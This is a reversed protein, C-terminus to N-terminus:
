VFRCNLFEGIWCSKTEQIYLQNKVKLGIKKVTHLVETKSYQVSLFELVERQGELGRCM